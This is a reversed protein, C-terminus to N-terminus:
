IGGSVSQFLEPTSHGTMQSGDDWEQALQRGDSDSQNRAVPRLRAYSDMLAHDPECSGIMRTQLSLDVMCRKRRFAGLPAALIFQM